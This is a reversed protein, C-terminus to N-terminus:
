TSRCEPPSWTTTSGSATSTTAARRRLPADRAPSSRTPERRARRGRRGQAAHDPQGLRHRRELRGPRGAVPDRQPDRQRDLGHRRAHRQAAFAHIVSTRTPASPTPSSPSTRAQWAAPIDQHQPDAWFDSYHIDLYLRDGAATIRQAMRLDSALDSYGAPPNVWLRLRVYNLGHDTSSRSRPARRRRRRHVPRRRGGGPARVVSRRRPRPDRERPMAAFLRLEGICPPTGDNDTVDVKVYRAGSHTGIAGPGALVGARGGPVSQQTADAVPRLAARIM